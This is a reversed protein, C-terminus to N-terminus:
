NSAHIRHSGGYRKDLLKMGNQYDVEPPQQICTKILEKFEEQTYKILRTLRETPNNIKDEVM